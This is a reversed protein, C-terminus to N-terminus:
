LPLRDRRSVAVIGARPPIMDNFDPWAGEIGKAKLWTRPNDLYSLPLFISRGDSSLAPLGMKCGVPTRAFCRPEVAGTGSHAVCYLSGFRPDLSMGTIWVTGSPAYVAHKPREVWGADTVNPGFVAGVAALAPNGGLFYMRWGVKNAAHSAKGGDSVPSIVIAHGSANQARPNAANVHQQRRVENGTLLLLVHGSVPDVAVGQPRDMPTAKLLDAALRAFVLVAAQSGFGNAPTLPGEGHRLPLWEVTGNDDFRAVSLVGDDLIRDVTGTRQADGLTRASVFRYLYEFRQDDSLFVVVHGTPDLVCTASNHCFRGLGTRKRLPKTLSRPDWEIVWGYHNESNRSEQLNFRPQAQHWRNLGRGLGYRDRERSRTITEDPTGFYAHFQEECILLTGWPTPSLVGPNLTGIAHLGSQSHPARLSDAGAAPGTFETIFNDTTFRRNIEADQVVHWRGGSFRVEVASLGCAAMELETRRRMERRAEPTPLRVAAHILEDQVYQHAACLVAHDGPAAIDPLPVFALADSNFGFQQSQSWPSYGSRHDFAPAGQVVPDGWGILWDSVYGKPVVLRESPARPVEAFAAAGQVKSEALSEASCHASLHGLGYGVAAMGFARRTIM